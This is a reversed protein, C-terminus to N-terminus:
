RIFEIACVAAAKLADLEHHDTTYFAGRLRRTLALGFCDALPVRRHEAKLRGADLWLLEDLDSVCALGLAQVEAIQKLARDEGHERTMNYFVECLNAAHIQCSNGADRLLADVMDAGPEDRLFAIVASSDLIANM